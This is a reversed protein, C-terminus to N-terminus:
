DNNLHITYVPWTHSLTLIYLLCLMSCAPVPKGLTLTKNGDFIDKGAVGVLSFKLQHAVEVAYNDNELKKM